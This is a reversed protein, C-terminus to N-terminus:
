RQAVEQPDQPPYLAEPDEEEDDSNESALLRRDSEKM